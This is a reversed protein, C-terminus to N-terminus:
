ENWVWNPPVSIPIIVVNHYSANDYNTSKGHSFFTLMLEHNRLEGNKHM